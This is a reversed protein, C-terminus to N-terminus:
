GKKKFIKKDLYAIVIRLLKYLLWLVVILVFGFIIFSIVGLIMGISGQPQREAYEEVSLVNLPIKRTEVYQLDSNEENYRVEVELFIKEGAVVNNSLQIEFEESESDDSDLKGIYSYDKSIIKYDETPLLKISLFKLNTFGQNIVGISVKGITGKMFPDSSEITLSLQPKGSIKVGISKEVKQKEGSADYYEIKVPIKYARKETKTDILIKFKIEKQEGSDIDGLYRESSELATFPATLDMVISVDSAKLSGLNKIKITLNETSGLDLTEPFFDLIKFDVDARQVDIGLALSESNSSGSVDLYSILFSLTCIGVSSPKIEYELNFEQNQTLDGLYKKNQGILTACSSSLTASTEKAITKTKGLLNLKQAVDKFFETSEDKLSLQFRPESYVRIPIEWRREVDDTRRGDSDLSDFIANITLTYLGPNTNKEIRIVKSIARSTGADIRGLEFRGQAKIYPTDFLTVVVKEAPQGGTNEIVVQLVGSDGPRLTIDVKTKDFDLILNTPNTPTKKETSTSSTKSPSTSSVEGSFSMLFIGILVFIGLIKGYYNIKKM